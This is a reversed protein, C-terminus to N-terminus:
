DPPDFAYKLLLSDLSIITDNSFSALSNCYLCSGDDVDATPDFNLALSDTCGFNQSWSILPTFLLLILIKKM